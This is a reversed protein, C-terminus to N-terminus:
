SRGVSLTEDKKSWGVSRVLLAGVAVLAVLEGSRAEQIYVVSRQDATFVDLNLENVM